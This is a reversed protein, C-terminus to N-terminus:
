SEKKSEMLNAIAGPQRKQTRDKYHTHFLTWKITVAILTVTITLACAISNQLSLAIM